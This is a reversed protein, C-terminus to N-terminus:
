ALDGRVLRSVQDLAGHGLLRFLAAAINGSHESRCPRHHLSHNLNIYPKQQCRSLGGRKEEECRGGFFRDPFFQYSIYIM